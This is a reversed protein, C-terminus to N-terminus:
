FRRQKEDDHSSPFSRALLIKQVCTEVSVQTTDIDLFHERPPEFDAVFYAEKGRIETTHVYIEVVNGNRKFEERIGRYPSVFSAVTVIGDAHLKAALQQAVTINRIRGAESFDRNGMLERLFEGDLHVVPYGQKQLASKLAAALTTKGAGPQGTFWYIMTRANEPESSLGCASEVFVPSPGRSTGARLPEFHSSHSRLIGLGHSISAAAVPSRDRESWSITFDPM